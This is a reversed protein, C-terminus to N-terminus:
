RRRRSHSRSRREGHKHPHLDLGLAASAFETLIARYVDRKFTVVNRVPYWYSVWRWGDFEQHSSSTFNIVDNLKSEDELSLLFWRQKQGLFENDKHADLIRKPLRYCHHDKSTQVIWVDKKTLGVEEYLERYMAEEETEDDRVGGQPFQYSNQRIRRAWLVQGKRNFIVMGVNPRFGDQDMM